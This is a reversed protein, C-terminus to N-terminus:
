NQEDHVMKYKMFIISELIIIFGILFPIAYMSSDAWFLKAEWKAWSFPFFWFYVPDVHRQLLDLFSHFGCGIILICFIKKRDKEFFQSILLSFWFMVFPSHFNMFFRYLGESLTKFMLQMLIVPGRSFIDPLIAGLYFVARAARSPIVCRGLIYASLFHTLLDPM